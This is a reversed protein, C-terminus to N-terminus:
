NGIGLNDVLNHIEEPQEFVKWIHAPIGKFATEFREPANQKEMRPVDTVKRIFIAQIWGPYKKYVEAYAEPDKQTSDGICLVRRQPLWSHIKEMRSVKYEQTNETYSKIFGSFDMWSSDRLILTGALYQTHLFERLFPYLNYPSASLYFWAPALENQIHSYLEPMGRIPRAEEAFTTRLIGTPVSTMTHKITDDIDSIVMWGEPAAFITDMSITEDWGRLYPQVKTGDKIHQSGLSVDQSSIGSKETPGIPHIQITNNPLPIEMTMVHAPEIQDLFPRLRQAIRQRIEKETGVEGDLGILDAVTAVFKSIDKRGHKEFVCAIVEVHWSQKTSNSSPRRYATNDLLWVTNQSPEAVQISPQNWGLLSSVFHLIISSSGIGKWPRSLWGLKSTATDKEIEPHPSNM